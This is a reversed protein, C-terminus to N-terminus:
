SVDGMAVFGVYGNRSGEMLCFDLSDLRLCGVLVGGGRGKRGERAEGRWSV